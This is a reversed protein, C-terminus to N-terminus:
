LRTELPVALEFGEEELRRLLTPLVRLANEGAVLSLYTSRTRGSLQNLTRRSFYSPGDNDGPRLELTGNWCVWGEAELTERYETPVSAVTTRVFAQQELALSGEALLKRTQELSEGEALLGVSHGAGLMWVILDGRQRAIEPTVFFLVHVDHEELVSLISPIQAERECRVALYTAVSQEDEPEPVSPITTSTGPEQSSGPNQSQNYAQLRLELANVAAEVFIRDNLVVDENKIRLLSGQEIEQYSFSLDFFDCVIRVPLYPQGNRIVAGHLFSEGSLGDCCTGERLNFELFKRRDLDMVTVMNGGKTYICEIDWNVGNYAADFTTYPTYLVGDSWIPMSEDTLRLVTDNVATFTVEAARAPLTFLMSLCLCLAAAGALIRKGRKM